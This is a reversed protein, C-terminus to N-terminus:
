RRIVLRLKPGFFLLELVSVSNAPDNVGVNMSLDFAKYTTEVWMSNVPPMQFDEPSVLGYTAKLELPTVDYSVKQHFRIGFFLFLPCTKGRRCALFLQTLCSPVLMFGNERNCKDLTRQVLPRLKQFFTHQDPKAM